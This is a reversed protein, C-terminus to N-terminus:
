WIWNTEPGAGSNFAVHGGKIDRGGGGESGGMRGGGDVRCGMRERHEQGGGRGTHTYLRGPRRTHVMSIFGLLSPSQTYDTRNCGGRYWGWGWGWGLGKASTALRPPGTQVPSLRARWRSECLSRRLSSRLSERWRGQNDGTRSERTPVAAKVPWKDASHLLRSLCSSPCCRRIGCPRGRSAKNTQQIM